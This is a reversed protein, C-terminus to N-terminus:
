SPNVIRRFLTEYADLQHAFTLNQMSRQAAQGMKERLSDDLLLQTTKAAFDATDFPNVVFGTEGDQVVEPSGGYCSAILGRGAAMAEFVTTPVPDLYISPVAVVEALHYAAILEDGSLWGGECLHPDQINELGQLQTRDFPTAALALLVVNPVDLVIQNLARLMQLSGKGETLRGGFFIVKKGQLQWRQRLQEVIKENVPTYKEVDFGHYIVAFTPLGNIELAQQHAHSIAIRADTHNKLIRRILLNRFPNYRLRMQWLNYFAPLRYRDPTASVGHKEVFFDVKSYAVPMLDHSSFVVPFGMQHAVSISAYSLDTHVNHVNVIDPQIKQLLERVSRLVSPNYVSLWARWREPYHSHLYDIEIGERTEHYSAQETASIIFVEHGRALFGQALRYPIKGGGGIEHPPIRDALFVIRMLINETCYALLM